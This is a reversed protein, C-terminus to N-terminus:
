KVEVEIEEKIKDMNVDVADSPKLDSQKTQHERLFFFLLTFFVKLLWLM